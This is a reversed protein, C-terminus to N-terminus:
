ETGGRKHEMEIYMPDAGAPMFGLREYLRIARNGRHVSLRLPIEAAAAERILQSIWQAGWGRNRHEPLFAIDVLRIEAPNRWVVASGVPADGSVLIAHSAGSYTAGYSQRRARFQMRLFTEQQAPPWGWAAMEEARTSAYLQFLFEDDDPSAPRNSLAAPGDM